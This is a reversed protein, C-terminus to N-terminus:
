GIFRTREIWLDRLSDLKPLVSGGLWSAQSPLIERTIIDVIEVREITTDYLNRREILRDELVEVMGTLHAAGGVLLISNAMKKRFDADKINAISYCVM